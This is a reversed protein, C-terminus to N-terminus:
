QASIGALKVAYAWQALETKLAAGFHERSDGVTVTGMDELRKRIEPTTLIRLIESSLRALIPEPTGVPAVIGTWGTVDFNRIGQEHLSAVDPLFPIRTVSSVGVARMKGAQVHPLVAPTAEAILSIQGGILDTLSAVAGGKYPVHTLSVKATAEFLALTLHSTTGSGPSGYTIEGPRRKALAVLEPIGKVPLSPNVCFVFSVTHVKTIPAFDKLTDYGPNKHLHPNIVLSSSGGTLITYGDPAAKAALQTGILTGAGPRNEVVVQQGLAATLPGALLRMVIDATQGPAFPVIFRIAKAPWQQAPAPASFAGCLAFVVSPIAAIRFKNMM